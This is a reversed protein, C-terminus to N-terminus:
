QWDPTLDLDDTPLEFDDEPPKLNIVHLILEDELLEMGPESEALM